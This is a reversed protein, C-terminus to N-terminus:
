YFLGSYIKPKVPLVTLLATVYIPKLANFSYAKKFLSPYVSM